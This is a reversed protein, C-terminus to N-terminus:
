GRGPRVRPFGHELRLRRLDAADARLRVTVDTAGARRALDFLSALPRRLAEGGPLLLRVALGEEALGRVITLAEALERRRPDLDAVPVDVTVAHDRDLRGLRRREALIAPSRTTIRLELGAFDALAALPSPGEVPPRYPAAASGLAIGRGREARRRVRRVLRRHLLRRLWRHLREHLQRLRDDLLHPVTGTANPLSAGPLVPFPRHSPFTNIAM